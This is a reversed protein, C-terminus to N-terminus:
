SRAQVCLQLSNQHAKCTLSVSAPGNRGPVRSRECNRGPRTMYAFAFARLHLDSSPEFAQKSNVTLKGYPICPYAFSIISIRQRGSCGKHYLDSRGCRIKWNQFVFGIMERCFISELLLHHSVRFAFRFITNSHPSLRSGTSSKQIVFDILRRRTPSEHLVKRRLRRWFYM